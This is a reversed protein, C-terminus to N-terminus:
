KTFNFTPETYTTSNVIQCVVAAGRHRVGSGIARTFFSNVLPYKEGGAILRLGQWSPNEHERLAIPNDDSGPGSSAVLGVYHLPIFYSSIVLAGGYSGLVPLGNYDAPPKAGEVHATTIFAPASSSVIFDYKPTVTNVTVGARWSTMNSAEVDDPHMFLLFTAPRTSGYGHHKVHAILAEVQTATLTTTNTALYHNHSGTFTQGMHSPPVMGDGNWLGYCTLLQDNTYAAPSFLRQLVTGNVLRNDADIVRAVRASIQEASADRLYRWTAYVGLDWDKLTAGLKLYDPESIGTPIGFESAEEFREPLVNQAVADGHRTTKYSLLSAIATTEANYLDLADQIEGWIVNFNIGDASQNVRADGRTSYGGRNGDGGRILMTSAM